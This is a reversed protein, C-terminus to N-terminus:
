ERFRALFNLFFSVSDPKRIGASSVADAGAENECLNKKNKKSYHVTSIFQATGVPGRALMFAAARPRAAHREYM